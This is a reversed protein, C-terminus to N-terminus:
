PGYDKELSEEQLYHHLEHATKEHGELVDKLLDDIGHDRNEKAFDIRERISVIMKQEAKLDNELMTRLNYKDEGEFHVYSLAEFRSPNSVPIGGILTIREALEEALDLNTKAYSDLAASIHKWDPGEVIWHQKKLQYFTMFHSALDSNLHEIIQKTYDESLALPNKEIEGFKQVTEQVTYNKESKM